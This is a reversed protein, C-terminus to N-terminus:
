KAVTPDQVLMRWAQQENRTYGYFYQVPTSSLTDGDVELATDADPEADAEPVLVM